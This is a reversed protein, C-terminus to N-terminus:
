VDGSLAARDIEGLVSIRSWMWERGSGWCDSAWVLMRAMSDSAM